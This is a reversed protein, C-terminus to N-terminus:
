PVHQKKTKKHEENEANNANLEPFSDEPLATIKFLQGIDTVGPSDTKDYFTINAIHQTGQEVRLV